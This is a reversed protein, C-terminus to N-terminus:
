NREGANAASSISESPVKHELGDLERNYVMKLDEFEDMFEEDLSDSAPLDVTLSNVPRDNVYLRYCLHPGTALGTAGVYGIVQGQEVRAGARIGSAFGNLHLYATKYINNHRIQVINGNGGRYRAETVVGDGVAIVPTGRRAAYDVGHHPRRERLIPHFRNHSFGSSVRQNYNFPAKLLERQMSDGNEDFFGSVSDNEFRFARHARGRHKFEAAHVDGLGYFEDGVYLEDYIVKFSDGPRLSFFDIEWAYIQAIASGLMQSMGDQQLTEYLSREIIGTATREVATLAHQDRVVEIEDNEWNMVLFDRRTISWVMAVAKDDKKYIHYTQGPRLRNLNANGSVARSIRDIMLPSIDYRRLILYLNENRRIRETDIENHGEPFGFEDYVPAPIIEKIEQIDEDSITRIEFGNNENINDCGAATFFGLLLLSIVPLFKQMGKELNILV